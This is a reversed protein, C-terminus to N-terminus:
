FNFLWALTISKSYRSLKRMESKYRQASVIRATFLNAVATKKHM